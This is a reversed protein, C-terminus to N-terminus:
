AAFPNIIPIGADAFDAANRTVVTLHHALATAAILGDALPRPRIASLRGWEMAVAESVPLIREAHDARVEDLWRSFAEAAMPDTRRKITIGKEIEGVTIVSIFLTAPDAARLWEFANKQRRRAESLICTDVLFM